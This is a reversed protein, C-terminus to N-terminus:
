QFYSYTLSDGSASCAFYTTGLNYAATNSQPPSTYSDGSKLFFGQSTSVTSGGIYVSGTNATPAQLTYTVAKITTSSVVKNGSTPCSVSGSFIQGAPLALALGLLVVAIRITSKMLTNYGRKNLHLPLTM